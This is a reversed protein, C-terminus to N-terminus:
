VPRSLALGSYGNDLQIWVHEFGLTQANRIEFFEVAGEGKLANRIKRWFCYWVIETGASQKCSANNSFLQPHATHAM